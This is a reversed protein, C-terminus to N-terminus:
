DQDHYYKIHYVLFRFNKFYILFCEVYLMGQLLEYLVLFPLAFVKCCVLNANVLYFVNPYCVLTDKYFIFHSKALVGGNTGLM